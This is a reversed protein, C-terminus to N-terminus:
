LERCFSRMTKDQIATKKHRFLTRSTKSAKKVIRGRIRIKVNSLQDSPALLLLESKLRSKQRAQPNIEAKPRIEPARGGLGDFVALRFHEGNRTAVPPSPEEQSFDAGRMTCDTTLMNYCFLKEM